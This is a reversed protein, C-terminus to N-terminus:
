LNKLKRDERIKGPINYYAIIKEILGEHVYHWESVELRFDGQVATYRVCGKSGETLIDHLEFQHGLFKDRNAEILEMYSAKGQITGYPSTHTFDPSLPLKQFAGKEWLAFWTEITTKTDM